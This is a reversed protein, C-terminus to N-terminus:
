ETEKPKRMTIRFSPNGVTVEFTGTLDEKDIKGLAELQELAAKDVSKQVSIFSKFVKPDVGCDKLYKVLGPLDEIVAKSEIVQLSLHKGLKDQLKDTDFIVKIPVSRTLKYNGNLNSFAYSSGEGFDEIVEGMAQYFAKKEKEFESDAEAKRRKSEYFKEIQKQAEQESLKQKSAKM